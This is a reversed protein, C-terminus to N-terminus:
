DKASDLLPPEGTKEEDVGQWPYVITSSSSDPGAWRCSGCAQVRVPSTPNLTCSSSFGSERERERERERTRQRVSSLAPKLAPCYFGHLPTIGIRTHHGRTYYRSSVYVGEIERLHVASSPASIEQTIRRFTFRFNFGISRAVAYIIINTWTEGKKRFELSIQM